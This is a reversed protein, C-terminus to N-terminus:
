FLSSVCSWMWSRLCNSCILLSYLYWYIQEKNIVTFCNVRYFWWCENVSQKLSTHVRHANVDDSQQSKPIVHPPKELQHRNVPNCTDVSLTHLTLLTNVHAILYTYRRLLTWTLWSLGTPPLWAQIRPSWLEAGAPVEKEEWIYNWM